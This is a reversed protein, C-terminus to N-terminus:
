VETKKDGRTEANVNEKIYINVAEAFVCGTEKMIERVRWLLMDAEYKSISKFPLTVTKSMVTNTLNTEMVLEQGIM